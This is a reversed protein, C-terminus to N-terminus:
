GARAHIVFSVQMSLKRIETATSADITHIFFNFYELALDQHHLLYCEHNFHGKLIPLVPNSM